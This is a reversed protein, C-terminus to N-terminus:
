NSGVLVPANDILRTTGVKAAILLRGEGSVPPKGMEMDTLVVYDPTIGHEALVRHAEVVPDAVDRAALLARSIGLAQARQGVSLYVNRSSLALGDPERVTPVGVVEVPMDTDRVLQRILTLQQFDKEGFFAVEAGTLHLLKNVVTLVGAFHGPRAAGEYLEALPGPNITTVPEGFPYMEAPSPAFVVDVQQQACVQLDADFSRPYREFDEGPGFQLPNVFITAVVTAARLRAQRLLQAHGVHLAGMTMVVGTPGQGRSLVEALEERTRVVVPATRVASM